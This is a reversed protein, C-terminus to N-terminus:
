VWLYLGTNAYRTNLINMNFWNVIVMILQEKHHAFWSLMTGERCFEVVM